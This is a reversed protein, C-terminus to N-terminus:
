WHHFAKATYSGEMLTLIECAVKVRPILVDNVAEDMALIIALRFCFGIAAMDRGDTDEKTGTPWRILISTEIRLAFGVQKNM